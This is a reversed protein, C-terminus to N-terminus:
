PSEVIPLPIGPRHQADDDSPGYRRQAGRPDKDCDFLRCMLPRTAYISCLNTAQDLFVCCYDPGTNLSYGVPEDGFGRLPLGREKIKPERRADLESAELILTRCCEGCRCCSLIPPQQVLCEECAEPDHIAQAIEDGALMNVHEAHVCEEDHPGTEPEGCDFCNEAPM